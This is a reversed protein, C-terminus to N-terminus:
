SSFLDKKATVISIIGSIITLFSCVITTYVSLCPIICAIFTLASFFIWVSFTIIKIRRKRKLRPLTINEVSIKPCQGEEYLKCQVLALEIGKGDGFIENSIKAYIKDLVACYEERNCYNGFWDLYHSYYLEKLIQLYKGKKFYITDTSNNSNLSIALSFEQVDEINDALPPQYYPFPLKIYNENSLMHRFFNSDYDILKGDVQNLSLETVYYKVYQGSRKLTEEIEQKVMHYFCYFQVNSRNITSIYDIVLVSNQPLYAFEAFGEVDGNINYLIYFFMKRSENKHNQPNYIYDLIQNTNTLSSEDVNRIYIDLAKTVDGKPSRKNAQVARYELKLIIGGLM